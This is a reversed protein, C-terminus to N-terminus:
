ILRKQTEKLKMGGYTLFEKFWECERVSLWVPDTIIEQVQPLARYKRAKDLWELCETKQGSLLSLKALYYSASGLSLSEAHMFKEHAEQYLKTAEESGPLKMSALQISLIGLNIHSEPYRPKLKHARKFKELAKELLQEGEWPNSRKAQEILTYGFHVTTDYLRPKKKLIAEHKECAESLLRNAEPGVKQSGHKLLTEGWDVMIPYPKPKMAYAASFKEYAKSFLLDAAEGGVRIAQQSLTNAWIYLMQYQYPNIEFSAQLKKYAQNLIRDAETGSSFKALEILTLGWNTLLPESQKLYENAKEYRQCAMNYLIKKRSVKKHKASNTLHIAYRLKIIGYIMHFKQKFFGGIGSYTATIRAKQPQAFLDNLGGGTLIGVTIGYLINVLFEYFWISFQLERFILSLTWSIMAWIAWNTSDQSRHNFILIMMQLLVVLVMISWASAGSFSAATTIIAPVIWWIAGDLWRKLVLYQLIATALGGTVGAIDFLLDYGLFNNLSQPWTVITKINALLWAIIYGPTTALIWLFRPKKWFSRIYAM